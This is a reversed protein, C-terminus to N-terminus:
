GNERREKLEKRIKAIIDDRRIDAEIKEIEALNKTRWIAKSTHLSRKYCELLRLAQSPTLISLIPTSKVSGIRIAESLGMRAMQVDEAMLIQRIQNLFELKHPGKKRCWEAAIDIEATRAFALEAEREWMLSGFEHTTAMIVFFRNRVTKGSGWFLFFYSYRVRYSNHAM